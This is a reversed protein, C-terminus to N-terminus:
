THSGKGPDDRALNALGELGIELVHVNISEGAEVHRKEVTSRCLEVLQRALSSRDAPDLDLSKVFSLQALAEVATEKDTRTGNIVEGRLAAAILAEKISRKQPGKSPTRISCM